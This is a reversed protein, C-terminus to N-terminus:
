RLLIGAYASTKRKSTYDDNGNIVWIGEQSTEFITRYKAESEGLAELANKKAEEKVRVETTDQFLIGVKDNGLPILQNNFDKNFTSSYREFSASINTKVVEGYRTFWEQEAHPSIEKARRGITEERKLGLQTESASNMYLTIYDVPDGIENFIM